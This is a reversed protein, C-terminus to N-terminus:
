RVLVGQWATRPLEPPLNAHKMLTHRHTALRCVRSLIDDHNSLHTKCNKCGYVRPANLYVNYTLGMTISLHDSPRISPQHNLPSQERPVERSSCSAVAPHQSDATMRVTPLPIAPARPALLALTRPRRKAPWSKKDCAIACRCRVGGLSTPDPTHLTCPSSLDSRLCPGPM